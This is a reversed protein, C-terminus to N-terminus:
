AHFNCHSTGMDLVYMDDHDVLNAEENVDNNQEDETPPSRNQLPLPPSTGGFFFVRNDIVVCGQRRRPGPSQGCPKLSKWEGSEVIIINIAFCIVM